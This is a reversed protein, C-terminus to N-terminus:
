IAKPKTIEGSWYVKRREELSLLMLSKEEKLLLV